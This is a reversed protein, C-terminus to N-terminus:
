PGGFFWHRGVAIEDPRGLRRLAVLTADLDQAKALELCCHREDAAHRGRDVVEVRQAARREFHDQANATPQSARARPM